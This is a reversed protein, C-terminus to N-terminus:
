NAGELYITGSFTTTGAFFNGLAISTVAAVPTFLGKIGQRGSGVGINASFYDISKPSNTTLANDIELAGFVLASTTGTAEICQISNTSSYAANGTSWTSYYHSATADGNIQWGFSNIFGTSGFTMSHRIRYKSYGSLGSFTVSTVGSPTQTSLLQWNPVLSGSPTPYVSVAM